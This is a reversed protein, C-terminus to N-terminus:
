TPDPLVPPLLHWTHDSHATTKRCVYTKMKEPIGTTWNSFGIALTPSAKLFHGYQKGSLKYWQVAEGSVYSILSQEM